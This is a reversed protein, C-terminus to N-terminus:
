ANRLITGGAAVRATVDCRSTGVTERGPKEYIHNFPRMKLNKKKYGPQDQQGAGAAAFGHRGDARQDQRL